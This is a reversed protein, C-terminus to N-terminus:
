CALCDKEALGESVQVSASNDTAFTNLTLRRVSEAVKEAEAVEKPMEVKLVGDGPWSVEFPSYEFSADVSTSFIRDNVEALTTYEDRIFGAFASGTSKLVACASLRLHSSHAAM